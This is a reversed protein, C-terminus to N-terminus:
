SPRPNAGSAQSFQVLSMKGNKRCAEGGHEMVVVLAAPALSGRCGAPDQEGCPHAQELKM